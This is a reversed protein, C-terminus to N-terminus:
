GVDVMFLIIFVPITIALLIVVFYFTLILSVIWNKNAINIKNLFYTHKIRHSIQSILLYVILNM